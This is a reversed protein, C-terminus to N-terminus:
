EEQSLNTKVEEILPMEEGPVPRDDFYNLQIGVYSETFDIDGRETQVELCRDGVAIYGCAFIDLVNDLREILQETDSNYHGDVEVYCTISLDVNMEVTCRNADTRELNILEIFFSPREFDKPLLNIYVTDDPYKEVILKNVATIIDNISVM